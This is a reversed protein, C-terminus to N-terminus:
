NSSAPRACLRPWSPLTSPNTSPFIWGEVPKLSRIGSSTLVEELANLHSTRAQGDALTWTFASAGDVKESDETLETLRLRWRLLDEVDAAVFEAPVVQRFTGAPHQPAYYLNEERAKPPRKMMEWSGAPKLVLIRDAAYLWVEGEEDTLHPTIAEALWSAPQCLLDYHMQLAPFRQRMFPVFTAEPELFAELEEDVTLEAFGAYVAPLQCTSAERGDAALM